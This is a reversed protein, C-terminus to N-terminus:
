QIKRRQFLHPYRHPLIHNSTITEVEIQKSFLVFLFRLKVQRILSPTICGVPELFFSFVVRDEVIDNRFFCSSFNKKFFGRASSNQIKRGSHTLLRYIRNPNKLRGNITSIPISYKIHLWM